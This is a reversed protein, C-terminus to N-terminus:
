AGVRRLQSATLAWQLSADGERGATDLELLCAGGKRLPVRSEGFGTMLWTVLMGLHPEHGVVAIVEGRQDKLWSLFEPAPSDPRLSPTTAVHLNGYAKAVIDATQRARVLPSAALLDLTEVLQLLGKTGEAMKRRGEDTLPRLDDDLGRPAFEEREMAIGHRIVLLQM